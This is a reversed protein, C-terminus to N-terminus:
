FKPGPESELIMSASPEGRAGSQRLFLCAEETLGTAGNLEMGNARFQTSLDDRKLQYRMGNDQFIFRRVISDM